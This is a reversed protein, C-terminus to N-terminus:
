IPFPPPPMGWGVGANEVEGGGFCFVDGIFGKIGVQLYYADLTSTTTLESATEDASTRALLRARLGSPLQSHEVGEFLWKITAEPSGSVSCTFTTNEWPSLVADSPIGAIKLRDSLSSPSPLVMM